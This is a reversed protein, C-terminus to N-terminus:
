TERLSAFIALPLAVRTKEEKRKRQTKAPKALPVRPEPRPRPGLGPQSLRHFRHSVEQNKPRYERSTNLASPSVIATTVTGSDSM